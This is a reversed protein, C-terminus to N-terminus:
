RRIAEDSAIGLWNGLNAKPSNRAEKMTAEDFEKWRQDLTTRFGKLLTDSLATTPSTPLTQVETIAM